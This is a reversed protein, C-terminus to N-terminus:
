SVYPIACLPSYQMAVRKAGAILRSLGDRQSQWDRYIFTEGPLRSLTHAEIAHVLGRPDGNAPIFYYWRRTVSGVPDFRLVLYALADRRHHDFFLWGDLREDRIAEQIAAIDVHQTNNM